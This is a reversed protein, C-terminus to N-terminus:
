RLLFGEGIADRPDIMFEHHGTIYAEGEVRPIISEYGGFEVEEEVSGSFTSGIISEITISEGQDIEGRAHHIALRGSVGTGTPSRDVEGDAFVCVNKGFLRGSEYRETFIVGYLFSLEQDVPHIIQRDSMIAKKIAKGASIIEHVNTQDCDLGMSHADVYAYYAGGFALDYQVHGISAVEIRQDLDVVFSPVNLFSVSQVAQDRYYGTADVTGAPTDIRFNMEPLPEEVYGCEILVTVLAIIGHGCMTSYGENHVFLVGIDSGPHEPPTIIGGYMDAHGRPELMLAMRLHDVHAQAYARRELITKGKLEPFGEVIVRFPEGGTHADITRIRPVHAPPRWDIIAMEWPLM